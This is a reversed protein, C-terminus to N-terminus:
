CQLASIREFLGFATTYYATLLSVKNLLHAHCLVHAGQQLANYTGSDAQIFLSMLTVTQRYM